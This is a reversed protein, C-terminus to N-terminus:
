RQERMARDRASLSEQIPAKQGPYLGSKPEMTELNWDAEIFPARTEPLKPFGGVQAESDVDIRALKLAGHYDGAISELLSGLAMSAESRPTWFIVLVPQTMSPQLLEVEFNAANIDVASPVTPLLDSM